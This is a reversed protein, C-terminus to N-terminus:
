AVPIKWTGNRLGSFLSYLQSNSEMISDNSRMIAATHNEINRLSENGSTMAAYYMPFYEAIMGKNISVDARVANLYSALLNSTEESTGQITKSLGSSKGESGNAIDYGYASFSNNLTQALREAMPISSAFDQAIMGSFMAIQAIFSDDSIGGLSWSKFLEKFLDAYKDLVAVKMFTKVIDKAVDRWTDSAYKKFNDLADEGNSLWDWIAETMNEELSTGIDGTYEEIKKIFEDYEERLEVLRELTEKTDGVLKDGYKELVQQAAELNILGEKDFLEANLNRRVWEELNETKESRFWTSHRTQLRMNNKASTQGNKYLVGSVASQAIQGVAAGIGGAIAAGIATAAVTGVVGELTMMAGLIAVGAAGGTLATAAVGAIAAVGGAVVAGWKSIGSAKDKYVEQPEYLEKYYASLTEKAKDGEARLESLNTGAFWETEEKRAKAVSLSYDDVAERLKNVQRAKEAYRKYLGDTNPLINALQKNVEIVASVVTMVASVKNMVGAIGKAGYQLNKIFNISNGITNFINGFGNLLEGMNGGVSSGLGQLANGLQNLSGSLREVATQLSKFAITERQTAEELDQEAQTVSKVTSEDIHERKRESRSMRAIRLAEEAAKRDDVAKNYVGVANVIADLPDLVSDRDLMKSMAEYWAETETASMHTTKAYENLAKIMRQVSEVSARDSKDLIGKANNQANFIDWNYKSDLNTLARDYLNQSIGGSRLLNDLSQREKEYQAIVKNLREQMDYEDHWNKLFVETDSKLVDRQLDRWKKYEEVIGKIRDQSEAPIADQIRKEIEEDSLNIDFPIAVANAGSFDREIKQRISDALNRTKGNEYEAGSLRIALEVNGTSERVSSFTEWSRTLSDLEIKVSSAFKNMRREAESYDVDSIADRFEKIADVMYNNRHEKTQYLRMGEELLSEMNERYNPISELRLNTNWEKNFEDFLPQFQDRVKFIAANEGIQDAYKKYWNYADKYLKAIERLRKAEDDGSGNGNKKKKEDELSLGTYKSFAIAENAKRAYTDLQHLYEELWTADKGPNENRWKNVIALRADEGLESSGIEMEIGLKMMLPKTNDMYEKAAKYAKKVNDYTSEFDTGVSIHWTMGTIDELSKKLGAVRAAIDATNDDITIGFKELAINKIKKRIDDTGQSAKSVLEAIGHAIAQKQSSTLNEWDVNGWVEGLKQKTSVVWIDLDANMTNLASKMDRGLDAVTNKTSGLSNWAISFRDVNEYLFKLQAAYDTTAINNEDLADAFDKNARANELSSAVSAQHKRILDSIGDNFKRVAKSYDNINTVLSDDFWGENTANEAYETAEAVDKLLSQAEAVAIVKTYLQDYMESLTRVNGAEDKYAENILHNPLSAYEMIYQEWKDMISMVSATDMDNFPTKGFVGGSVDGFFRSADVGNINYTIGTESLMARTNKLGESSRTFLDDNMQKAREVEENNKQWLYTIASVGAMIWTMPNLFISKLAAGVAVAASSVLYLSKGFLNLVRTNSITVAMQARETDTLAANHIATLATQKDVKGMAVAKALQEATLAKTAIATQIESMRLGNGLRLYAREEVTLNRYSQALRLKSLQAQREAAITKYVGTAQRDLLTNYALMAAKGAAFVVGVSGAIAFFTRWETTVNTLSKALEKLIDGVGSEAIDGYMVDLADKLNKFRSAISQSITEQMNYFMGGEDTLDKLVNVVDEYGIEKKSVRKRIEAVSVLRHEIDSFHESLKKALPINAMSFQRLTYGSLAAESRVHGLALSLRSVDTGTAASIDALRKTMDFLENYQFGYASLQKTMQDLEVVGFPSQIALAKVKDFLDNAHAVDGLIAGISLRQKELQGGIEIINGIFQQAGWVSLYQAAMSKLDSLIQSQGNANETTRRLANALEQQDTTLQRATQSAQQQVASLRQQANAAAQQASVLQQANKILPTYDMGGRGFSFLTGTSYSGMHQMIVSIQRMEERVSRLANRVANYQDVGLISEGKSLLKGLNVSQSRLMEMRLKLLEEAQRRIAQANEQRAKYDGAQVRQSKAIQADHAAFAQTLELLKKRHMNAAQAANMQEEAKAKMKGWKAAEKEETAAAKEEAKIKQEAAKTIEGYVKALRSYEGVINAVANADNKDILRANDLFKSIDYAGVRLLQNGDDGNRLDTIRRLLKESEVLMANYRQQHTIRTTTSKEESEAARQTSSAVSENAKKTENAAQVSKKGAEALATELQEIRKRIEDVAESGGKIQNLGETMAKLNKIEVNIEVKAKDTIEKIRGDFDKELKNLTEQAMQVGVEFMLKNQGM